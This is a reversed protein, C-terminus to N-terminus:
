GDDWQKLERGFEPIHPFQGPFIPIPRVKRQRSSCSEPGEFAHSLIALRFRYRGNIYGYKLIGEKADSKM